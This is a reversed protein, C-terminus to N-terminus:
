RSWSWSRVKRQVEEDQKIGDDNLDLSIRALRFAEQFKDEYEKYKKWWNDEVSDSLNFFIKSLSLFKAAQKIESIDHLDWPSIKSSNDKIYGMNRLHQVIMDRSAVHTSIHSAENKPLINANDIEFFERKLINDSSFVINIARFVVASTDVDVSFRISFKDSEVNMLSKDWSIFGSRSLGRTEDIILVEEWTTGNYIEASLKGSVTNATVLEVYVSSFPKVYSVDLRDEAASIELTFNDRIFDYADLSYDIEITDDNHIIELMNIKDIM